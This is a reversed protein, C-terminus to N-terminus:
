TQIFHIDTQAVHQNLYNLLKQWNCKDHIREENVM